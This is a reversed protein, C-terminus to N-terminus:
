IKEYLVWLFRRYMEVDKQIPPVGAKEDGEYRYYDKTIIEQEIKFDMEKMVEYIDHETVPQTPIVGQCIRLIQQTTKTIKAKDEGRTAYYLSLLNKIEQKYNEM